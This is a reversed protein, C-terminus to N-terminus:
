NRAATRFSRDASQCATAFKDALLSILIRLLVHSTAANDVTQRASTQSGAPAYMLFFHVASPSNLSDSKARSICKQRGGHRYGPPSEPGWAVAWPRGGIIRGASGPGSSAAKAGTKVW